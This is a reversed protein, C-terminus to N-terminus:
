FILICAYVDDFRLESLCLLLVLLVKVLITMIVYILALGLRLIGVESGIGLSRTKIEQLELHEWVLLLLM